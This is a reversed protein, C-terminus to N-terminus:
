GRTLGPSENGSPTGYTFLPTFPEEATVDDPADQSLHITVVTVLASADGSDVTIVAQDPWDLEPLATKITTAM